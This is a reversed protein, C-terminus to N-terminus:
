WSVRSSVVTLDALGQTPGDKGPNNIVQVHNDGQTVVGPERVNVEIVVVPKGPGEQFM